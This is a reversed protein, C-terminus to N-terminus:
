TRASGDALGSLIECAETVSSAVWTAGAELLPKPYSKQEPLDWRCILIKLHPLRSRLRRCLIGATAQAQPPMASICLAAPKVKELLSVLEGTLVADASMEWDLQPGALAELMDLALVDAEGQLARGVIRVPPHSVSEEAPQPEPEGKSAENTAPATSRGENQAECAFTFATRIEQYMQAAEETTLRGSIEDLRTLAVAPMIIDDVTKEMGDKQVAADLLAQSAEEDNALHQQYYRLHQQTTPNEGMAVEVWALSPIHKCFVVLCVTLPTALVLGVGGWLWTWFAIALLLAFDAVGASHGYLMPELVMNTLLELLVIYGIVMLPLTWGDFVALSLGIPLIAVLWPGVYPMFRFMAAMAGWLVVYPLGMLSLGIALLVGYLSNVAVQMLLYRTIRSGAEDVARTTVTLRSFGILQVIRQNIENLRLLMFFVFLVVVSATGLANALTPVLMNLIKMVGSDATAPPPAPPTPAPPGSEVKTSQRVDGVLKRLGQLIKSDGLQQLSEVRKHINQRHDPLENALNALEGGLLWAVLALTSFCLLTAAVVGAVRPLRFRCLLKVLPNLLFTFLAALALPIFLERGLYLAAVVLLASLFYIFDLRLRNAIDM